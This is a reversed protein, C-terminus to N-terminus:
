ALPQKWNNFLVRAMIVIANRAQIFQKVGSGTETFGIIEDRGTHYFLCKM